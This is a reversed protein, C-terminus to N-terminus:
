EVNGPRTQERRPRRYPANSLRPRGVADHQHRLGARPSRAEHPRQDTHPRPGCPLQVQPDPRVRPICVAGESGQPDFNSSQYSCNGAIPSLRFFAVAKYTAALAVAGAGPQGASGAAPRVRGRHRANLAAAFSRETPRCKVKVAAKPSRNSSSCACLCPPPSPSPPVSWGMEILDVCVRM